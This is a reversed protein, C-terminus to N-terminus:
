ASCYIQALLQTKANEDPGDSSQLFVAVKHGEAQADVEAMYGNYRGSHTYAGGCRTAASGLGYGNLEMEELLKPPLVEGQLLARYFRAVDEATAVVSSAAAIGMTVHSADIPPEQPFFVANSSGPLVYGHAYPEPLEAHPDYYTRDLGLPDLIRQSLADGFPRATAKEVILGLVIYGTNSYHVSTGPAFDLPQAAAIDVWIGPSFEAEPDRLALTREVEARTRPPLTALFAQRDRLLANVGDNLSDYLGSTHGLLHRVQIEGGYPLLGPLWQEVTDDLTLKGDAVLSLVLASTYTKTLSFIRFVHDPTLEEGTKTDAVGSAGVWTGRDTVLAASAGPAAGSRVFADLARQLGPRELAPAAAPHPPLFVDTDYAHLVASVHLGAHAVPSGLPSLTALTPVSWMVDGILPKRLKSSRFDSYGVHYVATFVLTALLALAGVAIRNRGRLAAFVALIPFTSLLLGDAAGYVVGRWVLAGALELGGPRPTADVSRVAVLAMVGAFLAGLALGWKWSRLLPVHERRAWAAFFLGVSAVYVGYYVDRQLELTDAFVFPVLFALALGGGLWLWHPSAHARVHPFRAARPAHTLTM